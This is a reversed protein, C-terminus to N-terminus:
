VIRRIKFDKNSGMKRLMQIFQEETIASRLQGSNYLQALYVELQQALEPKVVKLNNLRERAKPELIQLTTNKLAAEMKKQEEKMREELIKNKIDEENM